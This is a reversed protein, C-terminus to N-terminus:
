TGWATRIIVLALAPLFVGQLYLRIHGHKTPAASVIMAFALIMIGAIYWFVAALSPNVILATAASEVIGNEGAGNSVTWFGLYYATGFFSFSGFAACLFRQVFHLPTDLQEFFHFYARELSRLLVDIGRESTGNTSQNPTSSM